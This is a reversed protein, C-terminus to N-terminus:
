LYSPSITLCCLMQTCKYANPYHCLLCAPITYSMFNKITLQNFNTNLIIWLNLYICIKLM